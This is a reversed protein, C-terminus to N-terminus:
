ANAALALLYSRHFIQQPMLYVHLRNFIPDNCAKCLHKLRIKLFRVALVGLGGLHFCRLHTENPGTWDAKRFHLTRSRQRKANKAGQRNFEGGISFVSSILSAAARM